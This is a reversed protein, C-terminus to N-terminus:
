DVINVFERRYIRLSALFISLLVPGVLIGIPGLFKVAGVLVVFLLLPHVRSGSRVILPKILNDVMSVIGIGFLLFAIAGKVDGTSFLVAASTIYCSAAGIVPILSLIMAILAWGTPQGFGAKWFGLGLLAGQALATVIAAVISSTITVRVDRALERRHHPELPTTEMVWDFLGGGEALFVVLFVLMLFFNALVSITTSLVRPSFEYFKRVAETLANVITSQIEETPPAQGWINNIWDHIGVVLQGFADSISGAQVDLMIGQLFFGIQTVVVGILVALPIIVCIGVILTTAIAALYRPFRLRERVFRQFPAFIVALTFALFAAKAFPWTIVIFLATLIGFIILFAKRM